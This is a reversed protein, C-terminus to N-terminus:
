PKQFSKAVVALVSEYARKLDFQPLLNNYVTQVVLQIIEDDNPHLSKVYQIIMDEDKSIETKVTSALKMQLFDLETYLNDESMETKANAVTSFIRSLLSSIIRELFEYPLM